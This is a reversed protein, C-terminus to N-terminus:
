LTNQEAKHTEFVYKRFATIHEHEGICLCELLTVSLSASPIHVSESAKYSSLFKFVFRSM